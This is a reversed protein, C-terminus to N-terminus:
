APIPIKTEPAPELRAAIRLVKRADTSNIKANGDMDALLTEIENLVDLKAAARLVRRADTSNIKGDMNVDGLTYFVQTHTTDSVFSENPGTSAHTVSAESVFISGASLAFDVNEENYNSIDGPRYTISVAANGVPANDNVRFTLTLIEGNYTTDESSLWVSKKDFTFQGGLAEAPTVDQLTLRDTDYQFGLAFTNIGPNNSASVTLSVTEGPASIASSVSLTAGTQPTPDDAKVTVVGATLAFDVNIENYNAIDGPNYAVAVAAEGAPANDNVLFTLTLIEGNYTTDERNLWVAKKDYTFQGPLADAKEVNQLTLRETDYQIGLTFTNFGPNNAVSVKLAVTEGPAAEASSVSIRAGTQPAPGEDTVTVSGM